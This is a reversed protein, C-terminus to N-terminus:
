TTQQGNLQEELPIELVGSDRLKTQATKIQGITTANEKLYELYSIAIDKKDFSNM